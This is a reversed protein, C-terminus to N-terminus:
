GSGRRGWSVPSRGRSASSAVRAGGAARIEDAVATAGSEDIDLVGVKAGELAFRLSISRGISNTGGGGTVLAVKDKLRLLEPRFDM